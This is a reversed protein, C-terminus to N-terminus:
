NTLAPHGEFAVRAAMRDFTTPESGIVENMISAQSQVHNYGLAHGLEHMRLLRRADSSQDYERDLLIAAGFISGDARAARGGLGITSRLTRLGNYRGVVIQGRRSLSAHGGPAVRELRTAAFRQYNDSTLFRLASTLEAVLGEAEPVTLQESTAVSDNGDGRYDMVSTLVVLEPVGNWYQIRGKSGRLLEDLAAQDAGSSSTAPVAAGDEAARSWNSIAPRTGTGQVTIVCLVALWSLTTRM